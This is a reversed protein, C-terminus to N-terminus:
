SRTLLSKGNPLLTTPIAEGKKARQYRECELHRQTDCYKLQWVKLAQQMSFLPFLPCNAAHPCRM